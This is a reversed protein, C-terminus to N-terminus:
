GIISELTRGHIRLPIAEFVGIGASKALSHISQRLNKPLSDLAGIEDGIWATIRRRGDQRKRRQQSGARNQGPSDDNIALASHAACTALWLSMQMEWLAVFANRRVTDAGMPVHRFDVLHERLNSIALNADNERGM